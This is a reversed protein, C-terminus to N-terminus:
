IMHVILMTYKIPTMQIKIINRTNKTQGAFHPGIIVERIITFYQLYIGTYGMLIFDDEFFSHAYDYICNGSNRMTETPFIQKKNAEFIKKFLLQIYDSLNQQPKESAIM